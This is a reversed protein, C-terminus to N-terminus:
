LFANLTTVELLSKTKNTRNPEMDGHMVLAKQTLFIARSVKNNRIRDLLDDESGGLFFWLVLGGSHTMKNYLIRNQQKYCPPLPESRGPPAATEESLGQPPSQPAGPEPGLRDPVACRTARSM